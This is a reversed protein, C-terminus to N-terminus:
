IYIPIVYSFTPKGYHIIADDIDFDDDQLLESTDGAEITTFFVTIIVLAGFLKLQKM